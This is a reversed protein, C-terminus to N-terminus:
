IEVVAKKYFSLGFKDIHAKLEPTSIKKYDLVDYLYGYPLEDLVRQLKLIDTYTIEKGVLAFDIDSSPKSTGLARSGFIIVEDISAFQAFVSVIREYRGPPLGFDM